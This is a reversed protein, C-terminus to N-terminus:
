TILTAIKQGVLTTKKVLCVKKTQLANKKQTVKWVIMQLCVLTIFWNESKLEVLYKHCPLENCDKRRSTAELKKKRIFTNKERRLFFFYYFWVNRHFEQCFLSIYATIGLVSYFTVCTVIGNTATVNLTPFVNVTIHTKLHLGFDRPQAPPPPPPLEQGQELM